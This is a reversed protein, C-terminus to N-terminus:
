RGLILWLVIAATGLAGLALWLQNATLIIEM